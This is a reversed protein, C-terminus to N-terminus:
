RVISNLDNRLERYSVTGPYTFETVGNKVVMTFPLIGTWGYTNQINYQLNTATEGAVIPYHIHNRRIFRSAESSGMRDEVQVAIVEVKGRYQSRLKNLTPIEKICHPCDKGFMELIITKNKYQPFIFGNSREVITITQGQVTHVKHVEGGSSTQRKPKLESPKIPAKNCPSNIDDTCEVNIRSNSNFVVGVAQQQSQQPVVTPNPKEIPVLPNEFYGFFCGTNLFLMTTAVSVQIARRKFSAVKPNKQTSNTIKTM